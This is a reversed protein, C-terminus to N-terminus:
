TKKEKIAAFNIRWIGVGSCIDMVDRIAKHRARYDGRILVPFQGYRGYRAKMIKGFKARTLQAGHISIRGREDVEVVMTLPNKEEIAPGSPAPALEIDKNEDIIHWMRKSILAWDVKPSTFSLGVKAAHQAERIVDAPHVLIKSPLCGRTLCTGGFKSNEILACTLGNQLAASLTSLGAGSGIIVIDYKKM